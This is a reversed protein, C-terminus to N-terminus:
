HNDVFVIDTFVKCHTTTFLNHLEGDQIPSPGYDDDNLGVADIIKSSLVHKEFDKRGFKYDGIELTKNHLNKEAYAKCHDLYIQM